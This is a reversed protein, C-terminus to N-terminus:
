FFTCKCKKPEDNCKHFFSTTSFYISNYWEVKGKVIKKRDTSLNSIYSTGIAHSMRYM